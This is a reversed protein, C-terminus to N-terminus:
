HKVKNLIFCNKVLLHIPSFHPRLQHGPFLLSICTKQKTRGPLKCSIYRTPSGTHRHVAVYFSYLCFFWHGRKEKRTGKERSTEQRWQVALNSPFSSSSTTVWNRVKVEDDAGHKHLTLGWTLRRSLFLFSVPFIWNMWVSGVQWHPGSVSSTDHHSEVIFIYCTGVIDSLLRVIRWHLCLLRPQTHVLSRGCVRLCFSDRLLEFFSYTHWDSTIHISLCTSLRLIM